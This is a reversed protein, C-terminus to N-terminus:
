ELDSVLARALYKLDEYIYNNNINDLLLTNPLSLLRDFHQLVLNRCDYTQHEKTPAQESDNCPNTGIVAGGSSLQTMIEM